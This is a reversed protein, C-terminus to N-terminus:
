IKVIKKSKTIGKQTSLKLLYAGRELNSIDDSVQYTGPLQYESVLNKIFMGNSSWISLNIESARKISYEYTIFDKSPNPWPAELLSERSLHDNDLGVTKGVFPIRTDVFDSFQSAEIAEDSACLWDKLLSTFVQRYDFQNKLNGRYLDFLDPNKGYVGPITHAGFVFMPTASGHDTGYSGNSAARRGFESFTTGMVREHLNQAKLDDMFAKITSSLYYLLTSHSGLSTNYEEVQNAHTDFGGLRVLYIKTKSGGSILRSVVKLQAALSNTKLNGTSVAQNYTEPYVVGPANKGNDYLEKLRGAYQNSKEEIDVIWNLEKGYLTDEISEPPNVGVSSILNYFQDPNRVSIAAPIGEERHYALSVSNGIELGLPDPMDENPFSDPYGPYLTDLYRGMWGSGYYDDYDGGMFWVDTSRFHSQNMNEYGVSQIVAASGDDYLSKIGTMDPHLGLQMDDPLTSDLDIYKRNGTNSIAINPRLRYYEDYQDIPILTNLGDNGGHLQILVLVRDDDKDVSSALRALANSNALSNVPINNLLIPATAGAGIKKLFSRRKM